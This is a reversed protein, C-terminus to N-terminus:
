PTAVARRAADLLTELSRDGRADEVICAALDVIAARGTAVHPLVGDALSAGGPGRLRTSTLQVASGDPFPRLTELTDRGASAAGLLIARSPARLASALVEALGATGPGIVVALPLDPRAGSVEDGATWVRNGLEERMERSGLPGAGLLLGGLACMEDEDGGSADRLDLVIGVPDCPGNIERRLREALGGGFFRVRVVLVRGRREAVFPEFEWPRYTIEVDRTMGGREERLRLREGDAGWIAALAAPRLYGNVGRGGVETIRGGRVLGAAAAPSGEHVATVLLGDATPTVRLGFGTFGSPIAAIKRYVAPLVYFSAPDGLAEVMADMVYRQFATRDFDKGQRLAEAALASELVERWARNAEAGALGPRPRVMGPRLCGPASLDAGCVRRAGAELLVHDPPPDLATTRLFRLTQEVLPMTVDVGERAPCPLCVAAAASLIAAAAVARHPRLNM